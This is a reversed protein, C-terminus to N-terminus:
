RVQYSNPFLARLAMPDLASSASAAGGAMRAAAAAVSALLRKQAADFSERLQAAQDAPPLLGSLGVDVSPLLVAGAPSLAAADGRAGALALLAAWALRALTAPM